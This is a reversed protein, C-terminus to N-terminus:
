NYAVSVGTLDASYVGGQGNTSGLNLTGGFYIDATGSSGLQANITFPFSPVAVNLKTPTTATTYVTTSTPILNNLQHTHSSVTWGTVTLTFTASNGGTVHVKASTMNSLVDVTGSTVTPAPTTLTKYSAPLTVTASTTQVTGTTLSAATFSPTPSPVIQITASSTASVPASLAVGPLLCSAVAVSVYSPFASIKGSLPRSFRLRRNKSRGM